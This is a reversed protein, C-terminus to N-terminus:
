ISIFNSYRVYLVHCEASTLCFELHQPHSFYTINFALVNDGSLKYCMKQLGM